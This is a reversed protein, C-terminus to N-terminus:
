HKAEVSKVTSKRFNLPLTTSKPSQKKDLYKKCPTVEKRNRKRASDTFIRTRGRPHKGDASIKTV